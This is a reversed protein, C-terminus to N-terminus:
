AKKEKIKAQKFQNISFADFPIPAGEALREKVFAKLTQPHVTEKLVPELGIFHAAEILKELEAEGGVGFTFKAESRIIGAYGNKQLWAMAAEANKESIRTEIGDVIEITTGEELEVRRLGVEQMITPVEEREFQQFRERAAKHAEEAEAMRRKLQLFLACVKKVRDLEEM